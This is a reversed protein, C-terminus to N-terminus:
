TEGVPGLTNKIEEALWEAFDKQRLAGARIVALRGWGYERAARVMEQHAFRLRSGDLDAQAGLGYLLVRPSAMGSRAPLLMVEHLRGRHEGSAVFGAAAPDLETLVRDAESSRSMVGVALVDAVVTAAAGAAPNMVVSVPRGEM